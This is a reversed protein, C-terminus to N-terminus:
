IMEHEYMYMTCQPHNRERTHIVTSLTYTYRSFFGSACLNFKVNTSPREKGLGTQNLTHSTSVIEIFLTKFFIGGSTPLTSPIDQWTSYWYPLFEFIYHEHIDNVHVMRQHENINNGVCVKEIDRYFITCSLILSPEVWVSPLDLCIDAHPIQGEKGQRYGSSGSSNRCNRM